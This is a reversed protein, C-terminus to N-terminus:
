WEEVITEFFALLATPKDKHIYYITSLMDESIVVEHDNVVLHMFLDKSKEHYQRQKDLFDLYSMTVIM